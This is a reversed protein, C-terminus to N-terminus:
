DPSSSAWRAAKAPAPSPCSGPRTSPTAGHGAECRFAARPTAWGVPTGAMAEALPWEGVSDSPLGVSQRLTLHGDPGRLYLLAFPLDLPNGALAAAFDRCTDEVNRTEGARLGVERLLRTRREALVQETVESCVALMGAVRGDDGRAPAHSVSFYSEERYGNRALLLLLAPMWNAVGTEMVRAIMPGLVDWGEALTIRIDEGLAGPHKDGILQAYADNYFQVFGPGWTLVMPYRSALLTTVTARLSQPWQSVPGLPSAVWDYANVRRHMESIGDFPHPAQVSSGSSM